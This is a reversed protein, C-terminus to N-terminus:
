GDYVPHLHKRVTRRARKPAPASSPDTADASSLPNLAAAVRRADFRLPARRGPGLKVGGLRGANEYVWARSVQFTACVDEVTLLPKPPPRTSSLKVALRDAVQDLQDDSLGPARNAPERGLEIVVRAITEVLEAGLPEPLTAALERVLAAALDETM